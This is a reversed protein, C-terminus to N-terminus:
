TTRAYVLAVESPDLDEPDPELTRVPRPPPLPAGRHPRWLPSAAGRRDLFGLGNFLTMRADFYVDAFREEGAEDYLRLFWQGDEHRRGWAHRWGAPLSSVLQALLDEQSWLAMAYTLM